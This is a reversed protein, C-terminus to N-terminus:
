SEGLELNVDVYHLITPRNQCFYEMGIGIGRVFM